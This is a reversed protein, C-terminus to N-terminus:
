GENDELWEKYVDAFKLLKDKDECSIEFYITSYFWGTDRALERYQMGYRQCGEILRETFNLWRGVKVWHKFSPM